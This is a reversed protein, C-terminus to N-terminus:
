IWYNRYAESKTMLCIEDAYLLIGIIYDDIHIGINTDIVNQVLDNIYLLFLTPSLTNGQRVGTKM